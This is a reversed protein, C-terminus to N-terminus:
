LSVKLMDIWYSIIDEKRLIQFNQTQSLVLTWVDVWKVSIFREELGKDSQM